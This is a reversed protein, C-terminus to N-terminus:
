VKLKGAARIEKLMDKVGATDFVYSYIDEDVIDRISTKDITDAICRLDEVILDMDEAQYKSLAFLNYYTLAEMEEGYVKLFPHGKVVKALSENTSYLSNFMTEWILRQDAETEALELLDATYYIDSTMTYLHSSVLAQTRMQYRGIFFTLVILIIVFLVRLTEPKLKDKRSFKM